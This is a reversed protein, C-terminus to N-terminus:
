EEREMRQILTISIFFIVLYILALLSGGIQKKPAPALGKPQPADADAFQYLSDIHEDLWAGHTSLVTKLKDIEARWTKTNRDPQGPYEPKLYGGNRYYYGWRAWDREAAPLLGAATADIFAAISADSLISERLQQYREVIRLTFEPDRLMQAFWPASHFATTYLNASVTENNDMAQDFDWVPGMTLKGSYDAYLYTSNFGADYNLFFENLIFYDVFSDLDVMDRYQIFTDYDQAFLAQEFADIQETIREIAQQSLVDKDPWKVDLFGSLLENRSAYNKLITGTLNYRDRRLLFPLNESNESFDPLRIRDSEVAISEMLLYVGQYYYSDGDKCIVECFRTDPTYPMIQGAATYALYNRLLSKDIFSVNLVWESGTGVHLLNKSIRHGESDTLRLLYQKKDYNGSSNGRLRLKVHSVLAPTDSLRNLGDGSDLVSITGYAYPDTDLPVYYGQDSDFYSNRKPEQGGTDLLLLPLHSTFSSDVTLTRNRFNTRGTPNGQDSLFTEDAFIADATLNTTAADTRSLPKPFQCLTDQASGVALTISFLLLCLLILMSKQRENLPKM